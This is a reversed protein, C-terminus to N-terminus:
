HFSTPSSATLPAPAVGLTERKAEIPAHYGMVLVQEMMQGDM